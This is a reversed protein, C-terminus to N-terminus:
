YYVWCLWYLNTGLCMSIDNKVVVFCNMINQVGKWYNSMISDIRLLQSWSDFVHLLISCQERSLIALLFSFIMVNIYNFGQGKPFFVNDVGPQSAKKDCGIIWSRSDIGPGDVVSCGYAIGTSVAVNYQQLCDCIWIQRLTTWPETRCARAYCSYKEPPPFCFWKERKEGIHNYM